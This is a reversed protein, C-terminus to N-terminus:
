KMDLNRVIVQTITEVYHSIKFQYAEPSNWFKDFRRFLAYYDFDSFESLYDELEQLNEFDDYCIYCTNPIYESISADGKYIPVVGNFLMDFIKETIYGKEGTTNELAFGFKYKPLVDRKRSVAGKYCVPPEYFITSISPIIRSLLSFFRTNFIRREWGQGFLDFKTMNNHSYWNIIKERESYLEGPYSSTKNSAIMVRKDSRNELLKESPSFERNYTFNIKSSHEVNSLLEDSWTFVHSFESFVSWDHSKPSIMKSEMVLLFKPVDLMLAKRHLKSKNSPYEVFVIADFKDQENFVCLDINIKNLSEKLSILPLLLDDGINTDPSGFLLENSNLSSYITIIGIKCNSKM